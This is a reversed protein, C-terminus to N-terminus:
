GTVTSRARAIWAGAVGAIALILGRPGSLFGGEDDRGAAAFLQTDELDSLEDDNLLVDAVFTVVDGEGVDSLEVEYADGDVDLNTSVDILGLDDLIDEVDEDSDYEDPEVSYGVDEYRRDPLGGEIRLQYVDPNLNFASTVVHELVLSSRWEYDFATPSEITRVYRNDAPLDRARQRVDFEVEEVTAGAFTGLSDLTTIELPGGDWQEVTETDLEPDDDDDEPEDIVEREAVEWETSGEVDLGHIMVEPSGSSTITLGTITDVDSAVDGVQYQNLYGYGEETAITSEEEPDADPDVEFEVQDSGEHDVELVVSDDSELTEVSVVVSVMRSLESSDIEFDENTFSASGTGSVELPEDMDEGSLIGDTDDWEDAMLFSVPEDDGDEDERTVDRPAAWYRSSKIKDLRIEVPNNVIPDDEEHDDDRPVLEWGDASLSRLDGGDGEYDLDGMGESLDVEDVEYRSRVETEHAFASEWNVVSGVTVDEGEAAASGMVLSGAVAAGTVMAGRRTMTKDDIAVSQETGDRPKDTTSM